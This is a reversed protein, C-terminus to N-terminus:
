QHHNEVVLNQMTTSETIATKVSAADLINYTAKLRPKWGLSLLKGTMTNQNLIATLTEKELVKQMIDITM